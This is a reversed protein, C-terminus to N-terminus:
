RSVSRKMVSISRDALCLADREFAQRVVIVDEIKFVAMIHLQVVAISELAHLKVQHFHVMVLSAKPSTIVM